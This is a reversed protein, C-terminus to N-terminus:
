KNQARGRQAQKAPLTAPDPLVDEPTMQMQAPMAAPNMGGGAGMPGGPAGGEAQALMAGLGSDQGMLKAIGDKVLIDVMQRLEDPYVRMAEGLKKEAMELVKPNDDFWAKEQAALTIKKVDPSQLPLLENDIQRDVTDPYDMELVEERIFQDSALPRGDTGPARLAQALQARQMKDQPLQPRIRVVVTHRGAVDKDTLSLLELKAAM